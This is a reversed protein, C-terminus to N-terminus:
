SLPTQIREKIPINKRNKLLTEKESEELTESTGNNSRTEDGINEFFYLAQESEIDFSNTPRSEFTKKKL